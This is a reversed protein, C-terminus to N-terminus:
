KWEFLCLSISWVFSPAVSYLGGELCIIWTFVLGLKKQKKSKGQTFKRKEKSILLFLLNPLTLTSIPILTPLWERV